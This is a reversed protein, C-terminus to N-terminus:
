QLDFTEDGKITGQARYIGIAISDNIFRVSREPFRMLTYHEVIKTYGRAATISDGLFTLTDGDRLAFDSARLTTAVLGLTALLIASLKM